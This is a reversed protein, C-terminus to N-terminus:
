GTLHKILILLAVIGVIFGIVGLLVSKGSQHQEQQLQEPMANELFYHGNGAELSM